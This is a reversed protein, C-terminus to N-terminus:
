SKASSRFTEARSLEQTILWLVHSGETSLTPKRKLVKCSHFYLSYRDYMHFLKEYSLNM